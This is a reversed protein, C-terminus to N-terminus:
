NRPSGHACRVGKAQTKRDGGSLPIHAIRPSMLRTRLGAEALGAAPVLRRDERGRSHIMSLLPGPQRPQWITPLNRGTQLNHSGAQTTRIRLDKM